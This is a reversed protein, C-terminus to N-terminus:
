KQEREKILGDIKTIDEESLKWESALAAEEIQSAHRAGVIASTVENRRLTWAIALQAITKNNKEAIPQLDEVLKLNFSLEPELFDPDRQRHDDKPLNQVRERSFKGTLLGKQLPSYVILGINNEKCYPLLEKEM